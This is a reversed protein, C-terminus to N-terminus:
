FKFQSKLYDSEAQSKLLKYIGLATTITHKENYGEKILAAVFRVIEPNEKIMENTMDVLFNKNGQIDKGVSAFTDTTVVPLANM